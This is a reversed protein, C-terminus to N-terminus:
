TKSYYVVARRMRRDAGPELVEVVIRGDHRKYQIAFDNIGVYVQLLEFRLNPAAALGQRFYARLAAKGRVTGSPDGLLEIVRPSVLEIDDAFQDLIRELDHSNWAAIWADAITRVSDADLRM